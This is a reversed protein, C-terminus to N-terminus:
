LKLLSNQNISCINKLFLISGILFRFVSCWWQIRWIRILRHVLKWSLSVIKITLVLNIWFLHKWDFFVFLSRWWPIRWIRILSFKLKFQCNQIKPVFKDLFPLELLFCFLCDLLSCANAKPTTFTLEVITKSCKSSRLFRM